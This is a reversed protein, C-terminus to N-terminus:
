EDKKWLEKSVGFEKWAYDIAAEWTDYFYDYIRVDDEFVCFYYQLDSFLKIEYHKHESSYMKASWKIINKSQPNYLKQNCKPCRVMPYELQNEWVEDCLPCMLWHNGLDDAVKKMNSDPNLFDNEGIEILRDALASVQEETLEFKPDDEMSLLRKLLTSLYDDLLKENNVFIRFAWRSVRIVDYGKALEEKLEKGLRFKSIFHDNM